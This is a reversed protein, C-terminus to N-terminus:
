CSLSVVETAGSRKSFTKCKYLCTVKESHIDPFCTYIYFNSIQNYNLTGNYPTIIFGHFSIDLFHFFLKKNMELVMQKHLLLKDNPSTQQCVGCTQLLRSSNSTESSKWAWWLGEPLSLTNRTNVNQKSKCMTATFYGEGKDNHWGAQTENEKWFEVADIEIQTSLEVAALQRLIYIMLYHQLSFSTTWM